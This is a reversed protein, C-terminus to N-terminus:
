NLYINSEVALKAHPTVMFNTGKIIADFVVRADDRSDNPSNSTVNMSHMRHEAFPISTYSSNKTSALKLAIYWDPNTKVHPIPMLDDIRSTRFFINTTTRVWNQHLLTNLIRDCGTAIKSTLCCNYFDYPFDIMPTNIGDIVGTPTGNQDILATAGFLVDLNEKVLRRLALTIGISILRDDSDLILAFDFSKLVGSHRNVREAYGLNGWDDRLIQIKRFQRALNEVVKLSDDSSGDDTFFVTDVEKVRIVSIITEELFIAHNYNCILVAFTM